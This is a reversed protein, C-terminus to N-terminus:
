RFWVLVKNNSIRRLVYCSSNTSKIAIGNEGSQCKDGPELTGDDFVILKGVVGVTSWEKRDKRPIYKTNPDWEPNIMPQTETHEPETVNGKDDKIEPILVDHYQVRGFEDTLYKGQWHIEGADGVIAPTASTIGIPTDFTNCKEIKDGNLKVFFGMRDEDDPNGDTWEFFESYDACPSSFEGDASVNGNGEVKFALGPNSSDVGNALALAYNDNCTGYKGFLTVGDGVAKINKGSAFINNGSAITNTGNIVNAKSNTLSDPELVFVLKDPMLLNGSYIKTKDDFTITNGSISRILLISEYENICEQSTRYVFLIQTGSSIGSVNQGDELTISNTTANISVCKLARGCIRTSFGSSISCEGYNKTSSGFAASCYGYANSTNASISDEGNSSSRNFAASQVGNASALNAAFSNDGLASSKNTAISNSGRAEGGIVFADKGSTYKVSDNLPFCRHVTQYDIVTHEEDPPTLKTEIEDTTFGDSDISQITRIQFPLHRVLIHESTPDYWAQYISLAVKDGVNIAVTESTNSYLIRNETFNIDTCNFGSADLINKENSFVVVNDGVVINGTGFVLNNNGLIVNDNGIVVNDEGQIYAQKGIISESSSSQQLENIAAVITKATTKLTSVDGVDSFTALGIDTPKIEPM